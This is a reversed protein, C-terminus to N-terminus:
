YGFIRKITQIRKVIAGGAGGRKRCRTYFKYAMQPNGANDYHTGVNCLASAPMGGQQWIQLARAQKGSRYLSVALNFNGARTMGFTRAQKFLKQAQRHRGRRLLQTARLEYSSRIIDRLRGKIARPAGRMLRSMQNAAAEFGGQRYRTYARFYRVGLRDYPPNLVKALVRRGSLKRFAKSAKTWQGAELYAMALLFRLLVPQNGKLQKAYSKALELDVLAEKGKNKELRRYGRDLLAIALNGQAIQSLKKAGAANSVASKLVDVASDIEGMAALLAGLEIEVEAQSRSALRRSVNRAQLYHGRAAQLKGTEYYLRGLLRNAAFNRPLKKHVETLHRLARNYHKSMLYAIGLNINTFIRGPDLKFAQNLTDIAQQSQGAKLKHYASINLAKILGLKAKGNTPAIKRAGEFDKVAKDLDKAALYAEGRLIHAKLSRPRVALLETLTAIAEPYKKLQVQADGLALLVKPNNPWRKKAALLITHAKVSRKTALLANAYKIQAAASNPAAVTARKYAALAPGYERFFFHIDGRLLVANVDNPRKATYRQLHALAKDKRRLRYFCLALNFHIKPEKSWVSKLSLYLNLADNFYGRGVYADALGLKAAKSRGKIKLAQSFQTMAAPFAEQKLYCRGLMLHPTFDVKNPWSKDRFKLFTWFAKEAKQYNGQKYYYFGLKRMALPLKWDRKVADKFHQIASAKQGLKLKHMGMWLHCKAFNPAVNLCQQLKVLATRYQRTAYYAIALKEYANTLNQDIGLAQNYLRIAKQFDKAAFAADAKQVAQQAQTAGGTRGQGWATAPLAAVLLISIWRRM